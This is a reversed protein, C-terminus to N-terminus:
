RSPARRGSRARVGRGGRTGPPASGRTSRPTNSRRRPSRPRLRRGHPWRPMARRAFLVGSSCSDTLMPPHGCPSSSAATAVARTAAISGAPEDAQLSGDCVRGLRRGSRVVLLSRCTPPEDRAGTAGCRDRGGVRDRREGVRSGVQRPVRSGRRTNPKAGIMSFIHRIANTTTEGTESDKWTVQELHTKGALGVISTHHHITINPTEEIRRILYRSMSAAVDAGRVLVHVHRCGRALFTAAQGASNGGGVVVVEDNACRQSEITTAAYYIGVGEFRAVRPCGLKACEAGTAIVVARTRVSEGNALEIRIPLEECHLRTAGRVIAIRAGFKEAQTLARAGLEQGSLGTPFGLYNEIKSSSAAQGGPAHAELVVVDLGESAGYVAAALGGPGAGCVVVDHVTEVGLKPVLGLCDAVEADNPHRLVREGRCILIPIDAVDVQLQDLSAEVDPDKDVDVYHYPHGARTLFEQLHLTAASDQSGVVVADGYGSALLTLRRLIFARVLLDSLDSDTQVLRRLAANELAVVRLKGKARGRVLSRGGSLMAMEGTFQGPQLMVIPDEHKGRPAVIELEGELVVFLPVDDQGQDFVIQGSEFRAEKGGSVARALQGETFSPFMEDGHSEFSSRTRVTSTTM